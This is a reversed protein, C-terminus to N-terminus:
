LKIMFTSSESIFSRDYRMASNIEVNSVVVVLSKNNWLTRCKVENETTNFVAFYVCRYSINANFIRNEARIWSLKACREFFLFLFNIKSLSRSTQLTRNCSCIEFSSMLRFCKRIIMFVFISTKIILSSNIWSVIIMERCDSTDSNRLIKIETKQWSSICIM